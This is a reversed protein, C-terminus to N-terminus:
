FAKSVDCPRPGVGMERSKPQILSREALAFSAATQGGRDAGLKWWGMARRGASEPCGWGGAASLSGLPESPCLLWPSAKGLELASRGDVCECVAADVWYGPLLLFRAAPRRSRELSDCGQGIGDPLFVLFFDFNLWSLWSLPFLM